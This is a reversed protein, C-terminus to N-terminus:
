AFIALLVVAQEVGMTIGGLQQDELPTLGWLRLPVAVYFDYVPEPILALTLGIPASLLFGAFVYVARAGSSMRHPADQFVSWWMLVGTVFYTLHELHLISHPHRLAADYVAPVHWLVYTGLWLPLAVFPHTLVRVIRPRSLDAALAPALGLVVLLPAWEALIVNQLLHIWLLFELAITEFPSITIALLMLMAGLFCVHRWAATPYRSRTVWVYLGTLAPVVIMAEVNWSWAYPDV